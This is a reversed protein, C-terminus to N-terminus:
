GRSLLTLYSDKQCKLVVPSNRTERCLQLLDSLERFSLHKLVHKM